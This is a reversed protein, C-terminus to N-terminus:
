KKNHLSVSFFAAFQPRELYRTKPNSFQAWVKKFSRMQERSISKAGSGSAQFVYSFNEVVVGVHVNSNFLHVLISLSLFRDYWYVHQCFYVSFVVGDSLYTAYPRFARVMSLLNWAIFLSFAWGTSGCDTESGKTCRPYTLDSFVFPWSGVFIFPSLRHPFVCLDHM